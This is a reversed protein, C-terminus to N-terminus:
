RNSQTPPPSSPIPRPANRRASAQSGAESTSRACAANAALQLTMDGAFPQGVAGPPVCEPSSAGESALGGSALSLARGFDGAPNRGGEARGRAEELGIALERADTGTVQGVAADLGGGHAKFEARERRIQATTFGGAAPEPSQAAPRPADLRPRPACDWLGAQGREHSLNELIERYYERVSRNVAKLGAPKETCFHYAARGKAVKASKGPRGKNYAIIDGVNLQAFDEPSFRQREERSVQHRIALTRGGALAGALGAFSFSHDAVVKERTVRGCIEAARHCTEPDTQQLWFQVGFASIYVNAADRGIVEVIWAYSQTACINVVHNSRSLNMFYPDGATSSGSIIYKHCEDAFYLVLRTSNLDSRGNRSLMTSQFNMKCATGLLRGLQEYRDGPVLGVIKGSQIVDEFSFTSPQCFTEALDPDQLFVDFAGSITSKIVNATKGDAVMRQWEDRFFLLLDELPALQRRKSEDGAAVESGLRALKAALAALGAALRHDQTALRVIDVATCPTSEVARHLAICAAIVKRGQEYFYDNEGRSTGGRAMAALRTLREAAEGAPLREDVLNFHIGNDVHVLGDLALTQPPDAWQERGDPGPQPIPRDREATHSVRLLRGGAWRWGVFRPRSDEIPVPPKELEPLLAEFAQQDGFITEPIARGARSHGAPFRILSLMEGADSGGAGGRASLYWFRGREDRYRAVPLRSSPAVIMVDRSVCRGAESALYICADVLDGKVEPIFAGLKQFEERSLVDGTEEKYTCFLQALAPMLVGATKSSGTVGTVLISTLLDDYGVPMGAISLGRRRSGVPAGASGAPTAYLDYFEPDCLQLCRAQFMWACVCAAAIMARDVIRLWRWGDPLGDLAASVLPSVRAWTELAPLMTCATLLFLVSFFMCAVPSEVPLRHAFFM